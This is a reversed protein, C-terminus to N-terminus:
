FTFQINFLFDFHFSNDFLYASRIGLEVPAIFGLLHMNTSLDIGSSQLIGGYDAGTDSNQLQSYHTQDYFVSMNFRKFYALHGLQWDPYFLPLQYEASITYLKDNSVHLHGRAVRIRDSFAYESRSRQQYGAYLSLGHNNHLGPLYTTAALAYMSSNGAIGGLSRIFAGDFIFGLNPLLDQQSQHMIHYFYLGAEMAHYSGDTWSAPADDNAKVSSLNYRLRPQIKSFFRGRSLNLPLYVHLNVDSNKWRFSKSITDTRVVEHNSNVYQNLQLYSTERPGHDIGVNLVPYWGMYKLNLYYEGRKSNNFYRYGATFETTSLMNQSMVSIGPYLRYHYPDISVPAWSHFKFLRATKNYKESQYSIGDDISFDIVGPEQRALTNAIPYNFPISDINVFKFQLSDVPIGALQYGKATYTSFVLENKIIAPNSLGFRSAVLRFLQKNEDLFYLDDVGSYGAVFALGNNWAIPYAIEQNNYPFVVNFRGTELDVKRISKKNERMAVTYLVKGDPSWSPNIFFDNEKTKLEKVIKGSGRDIVILSFQYRAVKVAAIYEKDPSLVPSFLTFDYRRNENKRTNINFIRLLSRDNHHWRPHALRESWILLEDQQSISAKFASGPTFLKEERGISDLVVFRDIDNLSSRLALYKKNGLPYGYRYNTYAEQKPSLLQYATSFKYKDEERWRQELYNFVTDYLETKNLGLSKKLGQNFAVFSFPHAAVHHVVEDWVPKNYLMRPTATMFYGMQYHNPVHDKYSGLYAKSYSFPNNEVLQAKLERHFAPFRGRGSNSLGTEIAVADGEIFWFPLYAATILAAAQEGFLFRLVRPMESEIKSIQVMHRFEHIALQELWDQSYIEPHPTTFMEIRSPAWGLFANSKVTETHLIVSIKKPKQKLTVTAYDYSKEMMGAIAKAKEEFGEPFIVEFHLSEIRKWKIGASNQGNNFYQANLVSATLLFCLLLILQKM